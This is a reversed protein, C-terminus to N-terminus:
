LALLVFDMYLNISVCFNLTLWMAGFNPNKWLCLEWFDYWFCFKLSGVFPLVLTVGKRTEFKELTLFVIWALYNFCELGWLFIQWWFWFGPQLVHTQCVVILLFYITCLDAFDLMGMECFCYLLFSPQCVRGKSFLQLGSNVYFEATEVNSEPSESTSSSSCSISYFHTRTQSNLVNPKHPLWPKQRPRKKSNSFSLLQSHLALTAVAMSLSLSLSLSFPVTM